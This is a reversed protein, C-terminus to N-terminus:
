RECARPKGTARAWFADWQAPTTPRPYTAKHYDYNGRLSPLPSKTLQCPDGHEDTTLTAGCIHCTPDDDRDPPRLWTKGQCRPCNIVRTTKAPCPDVGGAGSRPRSANEPDGQKM